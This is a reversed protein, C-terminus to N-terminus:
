LIIDDLSKRETKEENEESKGVAVAVLVEYENKDVNLVEYAKEKDFGEMGHASLGIKNAQLAISMWASGCDFSHLNNIKGNRSFNRKGIIFFLLGSDKAWDKNGDFLLNLYKEQEEENKAYIFRWPQENFSSPAWRAAEFLKKIEDDTLKKGDYKRSSFRDIFQNDIGLKNERVM